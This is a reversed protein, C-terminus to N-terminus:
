RGPVPQSTSVGVDCLSKMEQTEVIPSCAEIQELDRGVGDAVFESSSLKM